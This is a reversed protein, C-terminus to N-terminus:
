EEALGEIEVGGGEAEDYDEKGEKEERMRLREKQAKEKRELIRTAKNFIGM